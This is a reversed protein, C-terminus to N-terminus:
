TNKRIPRTTYGYPSGTKSLHLYFREVNPPRLSLFKKYLAVHCRTSDANEFHVVEKPSNRINNLGGQNNKSVRERHVLCQKGSRETLEFQSITLYCQEDGGRLAFHVGNLYFLTQQLKEPTDSGLVHTWLQKEDDVTIPESSKRIM